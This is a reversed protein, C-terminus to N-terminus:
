NFLNERKKIYEKVEESEDAVLRKKSKPIEEQLVVEHEKVEVVDKSISPKVYDLLSDAVARNIEEQQHLDDPWAEYLPTISAPVPLERVDSKLNTRIESNSLIKKEEKIPLQQVNVTELRTMRMWAIIGLTIIGLLLIIILYNIWSSSSSAKAEVPAQPPAQYMMYPIQQPPKIVANPHLPPLNTTTIANTNPSIYWPNAVNTAAAPTQVENGRRLANLLGNFDETSSM